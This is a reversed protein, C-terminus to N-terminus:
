RNSIVSLVYSDTTVSPSVRPGPGDRCAGEILGPETLFSGANRRPERFGGIVARQHAEGRLVDSIRTKNHLPRLQLMMLRQGAGRRVPARM